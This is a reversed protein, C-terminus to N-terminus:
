FDVSGDKEAAPKESEPAATEGEPEEATHEYGGEEEGFGYDAASREGKSVLKLVQAANLRLSLGAAGTGKIFYGPEGEADLGVDFNIKGETGGWIEVGKMPKAKADFITPRATWPKGTKKSVGSAALKFSFEIENTENEQDDYVPTFLPNATFGGKADLKKRAAVEMADYAKKGKAIAAKHMPTLADLLPKAAEKTLVLKVSYEGAAKFKTDPQTLRPFKFVGRPSTFKPSKKKTEAM